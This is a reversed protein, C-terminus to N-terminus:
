AFGASEVFQEDAHYSSRVLPGSAVHEFGMEKGLKELAAFEQPHYYKQVALHSASPQLYQGITLIRCGTHRLKQMTSEVQAVTEGLGIMLGSKTVAGKGAAHTLVQLSRHFRAQPRVSDYLEPVTEINHNFVDPRAALVRDIAATDGLFDPVLVEIRCGAVLRRIAGITDAFHGAGGDPLDDRTVSTIVAYSLELHKVARAIKLPENPDVAAPQGSEVACFRCNRSCVNGLVMFTATGRGWCEARNPCRANSCVTNLHEEDLIKKM